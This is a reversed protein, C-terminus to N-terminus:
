STGTRARVPWAPCVLGLVLGVHDLGIETVLRQFGTRAVASSGSMGLDEDIVLIRDAAWGLRIARDVLAYQLRTSEQHDLVQQPTSQRM